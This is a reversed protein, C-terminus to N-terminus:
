KLCPQRRAPSRSRPLSGPRIAAPTSWSTATARPRKRAQLALGLVSASIGRAGPQYRRAHRGRRSAARVFLRSALRGRRRRRCRHSRGPRAGCGLGRQARDGYQRGAGRTAAASEGAARMAASAPINFLNQHPHLTFVTRGRLSEARGEIRGVTAYGYKVPFPFDGAMFPARMREFESAPVRGALM